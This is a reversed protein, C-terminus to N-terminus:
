KYWGRAAYLGIGLYEHFAAMTHSLARGNPILWLDWRRPWGERAVAPTVDLGVARFAGLSRVMHLQSTVLLVHGTPQQTLIHAVAVAEDRTNTSQDEDIIHEAPVGLQVLERRMVTADPWVSTPDGGGSSIIRADAALRYLRAAEAIREVATEDLTHVPTRDWDRVIGHGGGLLVIMTRGPLPTTASIPAQRMLPASVLYAVPWMAGLFFTAAVVTHLRRAARANPRLWVLIQCVLFLTILGSPAILFRLFDSM